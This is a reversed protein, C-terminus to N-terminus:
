QEWTWARCMRVESLFMLKIAMPRTVPTRAVSWSEAVACFAVTPGSGSSFSLSMASMKPWILRSYTSGTSSSLSSVSAMLPM